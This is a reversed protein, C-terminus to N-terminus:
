VCDFVNNLHRFNISLNFKVELLISFLTELESLVEASPKIRSSQSINNNQVFKIVKFTKLSIQHPGTQNNLIGNNNIYFFNAQHINPSIEILNHESLIKIIYIHFTQHIGLTHTQAFINIILTCTQIDHFKEAIFCLKQQYKYELLSQIQNASINNEISSLSLQTNSKEYFIGDILQLKQIKGHMRSNYKKFGSVAFHIMGEHKSLAKIISKNDKYDNVKLILCTKKHIKSM